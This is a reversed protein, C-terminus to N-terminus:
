AIHLKFKPPFSRVESRQEGFNSALEACRELTRNRGSLSQHATELEKIRMTLVAVQDEIGDRKAKQRDRYRKQAKRNTDKIREQQPDTGVCAIDKLSSFHLLIM